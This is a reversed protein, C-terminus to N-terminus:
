KYNRGFYNEDDDKDNNDYDAVKLYRGSESKLSSYIFCFYWFIGLDITNNLTYIVKLFNWYNTCNGQGQTKCTMFSTRCKTILKQLM